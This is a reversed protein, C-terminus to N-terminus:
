PLWNGKAARFHCLLEQATLPATPEKDTASFWEACLEFWPTDDETVTSFRESDLGVQEPIFYEGDELCGIIERVEDASLVGKIVCSNWVKYNSADRYLFEIKTNAKPKSVVGHKELIKRISKTAPGHDGCPASEPIEEQGTEMLDGFAGALEKVLEESDKESLPMTRM